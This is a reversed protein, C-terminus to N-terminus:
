QKKWKRTSGAIGYALLDVKLTLNGDGDLTGTGQVDGYGSLAKLPLTLTAGDSTLIYSPILNPGWVNDSIYFGPALKKISAKYAANTAYVYSGSIDVGAQEAEPLVAVTRTVSASFGDKNTASYTIDYVGPTAADVTGTTQVQLDDAGEKATVGPDTFSGGTVISIYPDGEMTLVAFNTIRSHGVQTDTIKVEDKACSFLTVSAALIFLYKIAKM